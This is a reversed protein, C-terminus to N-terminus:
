IGDMVQFATKPDLPDIRHKIAFSGPAFGGSVL